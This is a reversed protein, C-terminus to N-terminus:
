YKRIIAIATEMKKDMYTIHKCLSTSTFTFVSCLRVLLKGNCIMTVVKSRISDLQDFQQLMIKNIEQPFSAMQTLELNDTWKGMGLVFM